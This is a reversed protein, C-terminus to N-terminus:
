HGMGICWAVVKGMKTDRQQMVWRHICCPLWLGGGFALAMTVPWPTDPWLALVMQQAVVQPFWSLLYITFSAGFLGDMWKMGKQQYLMALCLSMTMGNLAAWVGKSWFDPVAVAVVSLILTITMGERLCPKLSTEVEYRCAAYGMLFYFLYNAVGEINLLMVGRCPNFLHLLLAGLLALPLLHKGRVPRCVVGGMTVIGFILFLTPIFWFFVIPNEWPYLLAKGYGEWSAEAPRAAMSGLWVKPVYALSSIVVYPILLRKVKGWLFRKGDMEWVTVGKQKMGYCLLYGSIAMFLPMHFFYIWEHVVGQSGLGYFSHGWVVLCIGYAQLFSIIRNEERMM